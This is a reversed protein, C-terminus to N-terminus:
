RCELVQGLGKQRQYLWKSDAYSTFTSFSWLRVDEFSHATLSYVNQHPLLALPACLCLTLPDNGRNVCCCVLDKWQWCCDMHTGMHSLQLSTPFNKPCTHFIYNEQLVQCLPIQGRVGIEHELSRWWILKPSLLFLFLSLSFTATWVHWSGKVYVSSHQCARVINDTLTGSLLKCNMFSISPM